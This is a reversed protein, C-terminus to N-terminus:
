EAHAFNIATISDFESNIVNSVADIKEAMILGNEGIINECKGNEMLQYASVENPNVWYKKSIIKNVEEEHEQGVQYAYILNNLSTLIYPSHTTLLVSSNSSNIGLNTIFKVLSYQTSPFLSIEPEDIIFTKTKNRKESYYKMVLVIPVLTKYGSPANDMKLWATFNSKRFYGVGNDNRYEINLPEIETEGKYVRLIQDVRAFQNFLADNINRISSKGLSFISQLSRETPFYFPYDMVSSVENKFFSVPISWSNAEGNSMQNIWNTDSSKLDNLKLYLYKMRESIPQCFVRFFSSKIEKSESSSVPMQTLETIWKIEVRYDINSYYIYSDSTICEDIGWEEFAGEVGGINFNSIYSFFRCCALLKGIMTKGTGQEGILVNFKGLELEVHKIPGFNKIILKEKM